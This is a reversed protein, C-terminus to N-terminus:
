LDVWWVLEISSSTSYEAAPICLQAHADFCVTVRCVSDNQNHKSSTLTFDVKWQMAQVKCSLEICLLMNSKNADNNKM